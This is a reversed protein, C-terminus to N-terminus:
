ASRRLVDSAPNVFRLPGKSFPRRPLCSAPHAAWRLGRVEHARAGEFLYSGFPSENQVAAMAWDEQHMLAPMDVREVTAAGMHTEREIAAANLVADQGAVPM